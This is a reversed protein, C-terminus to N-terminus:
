SVGLLDQVMDTLDASHAERNVLHIAEKASKIGDDSGIVVVLGNQGIILKTKSCEEIMKIMSGRKGILRPIKMSSIKVLEGKSIKGLGPGSVSIMPDRTRDFNAIKAAIVDGINFRDSLSDRASSFERGFVSQAPLVANFFSNIDVEWLSGTQNIIKGIIKDDIRPAYKGSQPIVVVGDRGIEAMGIRTSYIGGPLKIVNAIARHSGGTILEGPIVYKRKTESM